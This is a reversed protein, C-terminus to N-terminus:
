PKPLVACRLDRMVHCIKELRCVGLIHRLLGGSMEQQLFGERVLTCATKTLSLKSTEGDSLV